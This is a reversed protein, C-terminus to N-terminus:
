VARMMRLGCARHGRLGRLQNHWQPPTEHKRQRRLCQGSTSAIVAKTQATGSHLQTTGQTVASVGGPTTALGKETSGEAAASGMADPAAALPADSRELVLKNKCLPCSMSVTKPPPSSPLAFSLTQECHICVTTEQAQSPVAVAIPMGAFGQTAASAKAADRASARPQRVAPASTSLPICPSAGRPSIGPVRFYCRSLCTNCEMQAKAPLPTTMRTIKLRSEDGCTPCVVKCLLQVAAAPPSPKPPLIPPAAVQMDERAPLAALGPLGPAGPVCATDAVGAMAQDSSIPPDLPRPTPAPAHADFPADGHASEPPAAAPASAEKGSAEPIADAQSPSLPVSSTNRPAKSVPAAERRVRKRRRGVNGDQRACECSRCSCVGRCSPCRFGAAANKGQRTPDAVYKRMCTGCFARRCREEEERVVGSRVVTIPVTHTCRQVQARRKCQHCSGLETPGGALEAHRPPRVSAMGLCEVGAGADGDVHSRPFSLMRGARAASVFAEDWHSTSPCTRRQPCLRSLVQQASRAPTRGTDRLSSWVGIATREVEAMAKRFCRAEAM